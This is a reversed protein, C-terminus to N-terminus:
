ISAIFCHKKLEDSLVLGAVTLKIPKNSAPLWVIVGGSRKYRSCFM